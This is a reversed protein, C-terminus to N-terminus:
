LLTKRGNNLEKEKELKQLYDTNKKLEDTLLKYYVIGFNNVIDDESHIVTFTVDVFKSTPVTFEGSRYANFLRAIITLWSDGRKRLRKILNLPSSKMWFVMVRDPYLNALARAGNIDTIVTSVNNSNKDIEEKTLGYLSGSYSTTELFSENDALRNFEEIEIFHYDKGEKENRRKNRTTTTILQPIGLNERVHKVLTSKGSGSAGVFILINDMNELNDFILEDKASM